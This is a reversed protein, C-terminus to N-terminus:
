GDPAQDAAAPPTAAPSCRRLNEADLDLAAGPRSSEWHALVHTPEPLGHVNLTGPIIPLTVSAETVTAGQVAAAVVLRSGPGRSTGDGNIAAAIATADLSLGTWTEDVM